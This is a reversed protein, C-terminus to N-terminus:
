VQNAVNGDLFSLLVSLVTDVNSGIFAASTAISRGVSSEPADSLLQHALSLLTPTGGISGIVDQAPRTTWVQTSDGRLRAHIGHHPELCRGNMTRDPLLAAFIRYESGLLMKRFREQSSISAPDAWLDLDPASGRCELAEESLNDVHGALRNLMSRVVKPHAASTLLLVGSTQGDLDWGISCRTLPETMQRPYPVSASFIVKEDLCVQTRLSFAFVGNEINYVLSLEHTLPMSSQQSSPTKHQGRTIIAAGLSDTLQRPCIPRKVFKFNRLFIIPGAGSLPRVGLYTGPVLYKRLILTPSLSSSAAYWTLLKSWRSSM